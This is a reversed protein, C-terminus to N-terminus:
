NAADKLSEVRILGCSAQGDVCAQGVEHRHWSLLFLVTPLLLRLEYNTPLILQLRWFMRWREGLPVPVGPFPSLGGRIATGFYSRNAADVKVKCSLWMAAGNAKCFCSWSSSLEDDGEVSYQYWSYIRIYQILLEVHLAPEMRTPTSRVGRSLWFCDSAVCNELTYIM